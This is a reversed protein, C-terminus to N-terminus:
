EYDKEEELPVWRCGVSQLITRIARQQYGKLPLCDPEGDENLGEMMVIASGALLQPYGVLWTATLNFPLNNLLGSDPVLLIVHQWEDPLARRIGECATRQARVIEFYDQLLEHTQSLLDEDAERVIYTADPRICLLSGRTKTDKM